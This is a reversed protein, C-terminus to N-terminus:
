KQIIIMSSNISTAIGLTLRNGYPELLGLQESLTSVVAVFLHVVTRLSCRKIQRLISNYLGISLWSGILDYSCLIGADFHLYNNDNDHFCYM